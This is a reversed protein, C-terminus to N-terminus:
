CYCVITLLLGSYQATIKSQCNPFNIEHYIIMPLNCMCDLIWYRGRLGFVHILAMMYPSIEQSVSLKVTVCHDESALELLEYYKYGRLFQWNFELVVAM